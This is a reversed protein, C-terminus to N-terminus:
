LKEINNEVYSDWEQTRYANSKFSVLYLSDGEVPMKVKGQKEPITVM